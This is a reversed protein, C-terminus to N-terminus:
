EVKFVYAGDNENVEILYDWTHPTALSVNDTIGLEQFIERNHSAVNFSNESFAVVPECVAEDVGFTVGGQLVLCYYGTHKARLGIKFRCVGQECHFFIDAETDRRYGDKIQHQSVSGEINSVVFNDYGESVLDSTLNLFYMKIYGEGEELKLTDNAFLQELDYEMELWIVDNLTYNSQEPSIDVSMSAVKTDTICPIAIDDKEGCQFNSFLLTTILLFTFLYFLNKM